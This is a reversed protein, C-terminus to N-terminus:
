YAIFIPHDTYGKKLEIICTQVRSGPFISRPLHTISKMGFDLLSKTRKESNILTLWPMLAIVSDSMDMCKFLIEYGLKMPTFPPNMIVFDFRRSKLKFFDEPATIDYGFLQHVINGDGPTPELVTKTGKPILIAMYRAVEAPTQFQQM